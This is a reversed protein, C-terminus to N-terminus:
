DRICQSIANLKPQKRTVVLSNHSKDAHRRMAVRSMHENYRVQFTKQRPMEAAMMGIPIIHMSQNIVSLCQLNDRQGISRFDEISMSGGRSKLLSFHPAAKVPKPHYDLPINHRPSRAHDRDDQDEKKFINVQTIVFKKSIM